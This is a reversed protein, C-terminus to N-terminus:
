DAFAVDLDIGALTACVQVAGHPGEPGCGDVALPSPGVTGWRAGASHALPEISRSRAGGKLSPVTVTFVKAHSACREGWGAVAQRSTALV